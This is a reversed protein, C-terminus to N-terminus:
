LELFRLKGLTKDFTEDPSSADWVIGVFRRSAEELKRLQKSPIPASGHALISANRAMAIAQLGKLPGVKHLGAREMLNDEHAREGAALALMAAMFGLKPPLKFEQTTPIQFVERCIKEFHERHAEDWTEYQPDGADIGLASSLRYTAAAEFARYYLMAAFERRDHAHYHDALLIYNVLLLRSDLEEGGRLRDLYEFQFALHNAQSPMLEARGSAIDNQLHPIYGAMEEFRFACWDAYFQSLTSCFRVQESTRIRQSLQKFQEAAATHNGWNFLETAVKIEQEGFIELPNGLQVFIESGPFPTRTVKDFNSDTYCINLGLQWAVLAAAASMVKKGGTIDIYDNTDSREHLLEADDLSEKIVRYIDIPDAAKCPREAIDAFGLLHYKSVLAEYIANIGNQSNKTYILVLRKPRLVYAATITTVPSFGVTSVLVDVEPEVGVAELYRERVLDLTPTAMHERHFARAQEHPTQEEGYSEEGGRIREWRAKLAEYSSM